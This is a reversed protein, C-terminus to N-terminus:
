ANNRMLMQFFALVFWRGTDPEEIAKGLVEIDSWCVTAGATESLADAVLAYTNWAAVSTLGYCKVQMSAALLTEYRKQGGRSGICVGGGVAPDYNAPPEDTGAWVREGFAASVASDSLLFAHAAADIDIM